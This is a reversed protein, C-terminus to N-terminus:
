MARIEFYETWEGEVNNAFIPQCRIMYKAGSVFGDMKGSANTMKRETVLLVSDDENLQTIEFNYDYALTNAKIRYDMTGIINTNKFFIDPIVIPPRDAFLEHGVKAPLTPDDNIIAQKETDRANQKYFARLQKEFGHAVASQTHDDLAAVMADHMKQNIALVNVGSNTLGAILSGNAELKAGYRCMLLNFYPLRKEDIAEKVRISNSM